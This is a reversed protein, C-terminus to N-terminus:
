IQSQFVRMYIAMFFFVHIITDISSRTQFTNRTKYNNKFVESKRASFSIIKRDIIVKGRPLFLRLRCSLKPVSDYVASQLCIEM